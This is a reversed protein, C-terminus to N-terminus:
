YTRVEPQWRTITVPIYDLRPGEPTFFALTHKLWNRDDRKPYDRRAQAGRSETRNLACATIVEGLDLMNEVELFGILETNFVNGKHRVPVRTFREKLERIRDLTLELSEANRFIGVGQNM